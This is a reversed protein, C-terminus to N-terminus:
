KLAIVDEPPRTTWRGNTFDPFFQPAGGAAISQESLYTIATWTAADYVDIPMPKKNVLADIFVRFEIYDMGGHGKEKEEPPIDRWVPPLYEPKYKEANNFNEKYYPITAFSEKSEGDFFFIDPGMEYFGKTGHVRIDRNYSHPLTTDLRLTVTEGGACTIITSIVDGQRFKKGALTPDIEPHEAVYEELGCAKSAVSVLSVFRNGRNINLLKAIPGIEHTPYNDCNRNLYHHLRYHRKNNGNTVEVRLDHAYAGNCHVITGFRGARAMSTVLLEQEDFCCNEMFMYPTKTEEYARVLAVCEEYSAAGNVESAVAVGRRMAYISVEAHYEWSTSVYVARPEDGPLAALYDIAERYDTTGYPTYGREDLVRKKADEVRDPYVDCMVAFKLEPFKLLQDRLMSSGRSGLGIIGFNVM